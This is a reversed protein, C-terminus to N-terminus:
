FDQGRVGDKTSHLKINSGGRMINAVGPKAQTPNKADGHGDAFVMPAPADYHSEVIQPRKSYYAVHADFLMVKSSPSLVDEPKVPAIMKADDQPKEGFLEPRAIFANSLRLSIQERAELDDGEPLVQPLGPSVWIPYNEEPNVFRSVPGAWMWEMEFPDSTIMVSNPRLWQTGIMGEPVPMDGHTAKVPAGPEIFPYTRYQGAYQAFTMGVSRVNAMGKTQRAMLRAKALAPLALSILLGVIGIAGVLEILSFGRTRTHARM